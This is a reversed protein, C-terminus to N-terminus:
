VVREIIFNFGGLVVVLTELVVVLAELGVVLTELATTCMGCELEMHWYGHKLNWTALIM